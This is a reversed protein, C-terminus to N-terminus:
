SFEPNFEPVYNFAIGTRGTNRAEHMAALYIANRGFKSNVQDMARSLDLRNREQPFLPEIVQRQETLNYFTISVKMPTGRPLPKRDWAQTLSEVMTLTDQALGLPLDCRWDGSDRGYSIHAAMRSAWYGISRLRAAAKHTLRVLVAKAGEITRHKPPLVHSHGLTRRQTPKEYTEFGRLWHWWNSGVVSHWIRKMDAESLECIQRVTTIGHSLLRKNMRSGIGPLDMPKLRYLAHPLDSENLIVLGDPKQMDTAVKALWRNPALGVSCRLCEGVRKVITRKVKKALEVAREPQRESGMLRCSVEDISHIGDVHLCSEVAEVVQKHVEVYRQPRALVIQVDPCLLRAEGINTGTKIGFRKAEYSAAIASTTNTDVPSVVVPRGRLEPRDHQEVSAFYSNLDFFMWRLM